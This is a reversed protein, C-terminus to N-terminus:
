QEEVLISKINVLGHLNIHWKMFFYFWVMWLMQVEKKKRLILNQWENDIIKVINDKM